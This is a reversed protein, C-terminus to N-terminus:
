SYFHMRSTKNRREFTLVKVQAAGNLSKSVSATFCCAVASRPQYPSGCNDMTLLAPLRITLRNGFCKCIFVSLSLFSLPSVSLGSAASKKIASLQHDSVPLHALSTLSDGVFPM